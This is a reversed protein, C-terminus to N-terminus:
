VSKISNFFCLSVRRCWNQTNIPSLGSFAASILLAESSLKFNSLSIGSAIDDSIIANTVKLMPTYSSVFLMVEREDVYTQKKIRQEERVIKTQPKMNFITKEGKTSQVAIIPAQLYSSDERCCSYPYRIQKETKETTQKFDEADTVIIPKNSLREFITEM